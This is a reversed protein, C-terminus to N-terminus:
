KVRKTRKETEDKRKTQCKRRKRIANKHKVIRRRAEVEINDRKTEERIIYYPATEELLVLVWFNVELDRQSRIKWIM